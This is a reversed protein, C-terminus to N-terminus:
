QHKCSLLVLPLLNKAEDGEQGQTEQNMTSRCGDPREMVGTEVENPSNNEANAELPLYSNIHFTDLCIACTVDKREIDGDGM